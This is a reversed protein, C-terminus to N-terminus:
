GELVFRIGRLYSELASKEVNKRMVTSLATAPDDILKMVEALAGEVRAIEQTLKSSPVQPMRPSDEKSPTALQTRSSQLDAQLKQVQQELAAKASNTANLQSELTSRISQVEELTADRQKLKNLAD